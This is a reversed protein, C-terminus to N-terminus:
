PYYEVTFYINEFLNRLPIYTSGNIIVPPAGDSIYSGNIALSINTSRAQSVDPFILFLFIIAIIVKKM